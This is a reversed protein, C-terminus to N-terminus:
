LAECRALYGMLPTLARPSRMGRYGVARRDGLYQEVRDSLDSVALGQQDLWRSLHAMLRLQVVVSLPTYGATLLASEFGSAFEALPGPVGVRAVKSIPKNMMAEKERFM